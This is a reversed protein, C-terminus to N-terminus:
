QKQIKFSLIENGNIVQLLYVANPLDDLDITRSTGSGGAPKNVPQGFINYLQIKSESYAQPLIIRVRGSTVTPYVKVAGSRCDINTSVIKSYSYQTGIDALKLRYYNTGNEPARDTYTYGAVHTYPLEAINTFNRGDASREVAFHSFNKVNAVQWNLQVRCDQAQANFDMLTLGLPNPFKLKIQDSINCGDVFSVNVSYTGTDIAVLSDATSGNNWLYQSSPSGFFGDTHITYPLASITTDPGLGYIPAVGNYPAITWNTNNGQNDTHERAIFPAAAGAATMRRLRVYDFDADGSTKTVTASSTTSSSYIQTLHCPTGSGYWAGTITTNTGANFTYNDGPFFVLTNITNGTGYIGGSGKYEVIGLTNSNGGIGVLSSTSTNTFTLKNITASSITASTNLIGSVNVTDYQLGNAIFTGATVSSNAANLTHNAITGSYRWTTATINSTNINVVYVNNLAGNDISSLNLTLGPANFTGNTVTFDTQSNSYNNLLTLSGGPKDINVDFNGSVTSKLFAANGGKVTIPNVNFTATPNLIVSDGWVEVAWSAAKSWIPSNAAGTWNVNRCYANGNNVTVTKSVATFGSAADFYVDDYVTPVCAGSAGGSTTSWHNPDNWDGAGGIWYRASGAASNITWGSNGGADAGNFAIPTIVGTATMNQLYVNAMQVTSAIGFALTGSTNGRM